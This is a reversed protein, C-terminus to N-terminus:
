DMRSNTLGWEGNVRTVTCIVGKRYGNTYYNGLKQNQKRANESLQKWSKASNKTSAGTRVNLISANIKYTGVKYNSSSSYSSSKESINQTYALYIYGKSTKGWGNKTSYITVITDKSYSGIKRYQTGANKRIILGSKATVRVKYSGGNYSTSYSYTPASYSSSLYDMSVWSNAGIRGWGSQTEYVTVKTGKSLIGIVSYNLSSGNRVRLGGNATVYMTQNSTTSTNPNTNIQQGANYEYAFFGNANAYNRFNEISVYVTNGSVYAKGRRTSTEFKGNYLYPDYVKVYGDEIGTLVIFHGGYTFLGSGCSAIVYHNNQLLDIARDFSSTEEYNIDFYDATWRYAAWYTGNNASRYGMQLYLDGMQYPYIKGKISSVVMAASTPGCGSSGITQSSDGISSYPYYRWRGDIQSFYTLGEYNGLTFGDSVYDGNYAINGQYELGETEVPETELGKEDSETQTPIEESSDSSTIVNETKNTINYLTKMKNYQHAFGLGLFTLLLVIVIIFKLIKNKNM